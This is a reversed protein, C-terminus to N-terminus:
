TRSYNCLDNVSLDGARNRDLPINKVKRKEVTVALIGRKACRGGRGVAGSLRKDCSGRKKTHLLVFNETADATMPRQNAGQVTKSRRREQSVPAM